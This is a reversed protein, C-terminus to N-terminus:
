KLEMVTLHTDMSTAGMEGVRVLGIDQHQVLAGGAYAHGQEGLGSRAM